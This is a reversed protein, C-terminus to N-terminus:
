GVVDLVAAFDLEGLGKAEGREYLAAAAPVMALNAGLKKALATAYRMDKAMLKLAFDPDGFRHGTMRPLKMTVIPSAGAGVSILDAAQAIDINAKGALTLAEALVALHSAAIMNNILKWTAGAGVPGLHNIKISVAELAPRARDLVAKDGGVFLALKGDMAAGKSGGVPSDLFDAGRAKALGALEHIWEPTLTSSEVVIAGRKIGALGGDAGQWVARSADDDAVMAVVMDADRAADRPTDAIRAGAAALAGGKARTRNYVAVAFGKKLWNAAMGAGMVGLGLVAIKQM